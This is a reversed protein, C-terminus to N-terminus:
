CNDPPRELEYLTPTRYLLLVASCYSLLSKHAISQPEIRLVRTSQSRWSM